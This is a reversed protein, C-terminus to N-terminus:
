DVFLRHPHAVVDIHSLWLRTLLVGLCPLLACGLAGLASSRSGDLAHRFRGGGPRSVVATLACATDGLVIHSAHVALCATHHGHHAIRHIACLAASALLVWGHHPARRSPRPRRRTRPTPALGVRGANRRAAEPLRPRGARPQPPGNQRSHQVQRHFPLATNPAVQEHSIPCACPLGSLDTARAPWKLIQFVDAADDARTLSAAGISCGSVRSDGGGGGVGVWGAGARAQSGNGM